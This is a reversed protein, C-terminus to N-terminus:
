VATVDAATTPPGAQLSDTEAKAGFAIALDNELMRVSEDERLATVKEIQEPTMGYRNAAVWAFPFGVQRDKLAADSAQAMTRTQPDAWVIDSGLIDDALQLNGQALAILQFVRRMAAGAHLEFEEVKKVLGTESAILTESNINTLEGLIYQLPTRTQAAIHQVASTVIATFKDLDASDWQGISSEGGSLWLMRGKALHELEIQTEGVINGGDDLIPRMPPEQGMVVRAPMSAFDAAAFLYAWMLNVSDQMSVVGKIDSIPDAGLSPRNPVEVIPLVGLPNVSQWDDGASARPLWGGAARTYHAVSRTATSPVPVADASPRELKIIEDATFLTAYQMGNEFWAKLAYQPQRTEVDYSVVIQDSREWSILPDGDTPWVLVFSRGTVITHLFGQTSQAQMENRDWVRMLEREDDSVIDSDTGIRIGVLKIREASAQAVVGCWNDSFTSFRDSNFAAWEDSAYALGQEGNYYSEMRTVEPARRALELTLEDAVKAPNELTM